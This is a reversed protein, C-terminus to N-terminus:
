NKFNFKMKFLYKVKVQNTDYVVYENYMLYKPTKSTCFGQLPAVVGDIRSHQSMVYRGLAEISQHQANPIDVFNFANTMVKSEGLAVECLLVLGVNNTKDPLCYNASKSVVDAFYIGKGFMYGTVPAEPPAVKLGNSLINAFNMLRSGHWLLKHNPLQHQFREDEGSRAVKFIELVELTYNNHTPGHTDRVIDCFQQFETSGKAIPVIDANLKSYCADLPHTKEGNEGELFSYITQMNLLSELKENEVRITAISDIVQPRSIGCVHPILTRFKSSADRLQHINGKRILNSINALTLMAMKIQEASIKGLPMQKLDLDCGCMLDEMKTIDFLMEMLNYVPANLKTAIFSDAMQKPVGVEVDLHYFKKPRKQFTTVGFTNGTKDEYTSNFKELAEDLQGYMKLQKSGIVTGIRGWSEFVWFRFFFCHM